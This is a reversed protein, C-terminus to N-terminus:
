QKLAKYHASYRQVAALVDDIAETAPIHALTTIKAYFDFPTKLYATNTVLYNKGGFCGGNESFREKAAKNGGPFVHLPFRAELTGLLDNGHKAADAFTDYVGITVVKEKYTSGFSGPADNYRFEITVLHKEVKNARDQNQM